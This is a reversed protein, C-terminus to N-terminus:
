EPRKEAPDSSPVGPGRVSLQPPARTTPSALARPNNETLSTGRSLFSEFSREGTGIRPIMERPGLQLAQPSPLMQMQRIDTPRPLERAPPGTGHDPMNRSREDVNSVVSMPARDGQPEHHVEPNPGETPKVDTSPSFSRPPHDPGAPSGPNSEFKLRGTGARRPPPYTEGRAEAAAKRRETEAKSPRGRKRPPEGRSVNEFSSSLNASVGSESSFSTANAPPRPQIARPALLPKESPFLPRKRLSSGELMPAPSASSEPRPQQFPGINM